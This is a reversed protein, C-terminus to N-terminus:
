AASHPRWWRAVAGTSRVWGGNEFYKSIVSGIANEEPPVMGIPWRAKFEAADM